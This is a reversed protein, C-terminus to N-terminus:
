VAEKMASFVVGIFYGVLGLVIHNPVGLWYVTNTNSSLWLCYLWVGTLVFVFLLVWDMLKTEKIHSIEFGSRKLEEREEDSIPWDRSKPIILPLLFGAGTAALTPGMFSLSDIQLASRLLWELLLLFFPFGYILINKAM